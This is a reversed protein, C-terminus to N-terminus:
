LGPEELQEGELLTVIKKSDIFFSMDIPSLINMLPLLLENNRLSTSIFIAEDLTQLESMSCGM